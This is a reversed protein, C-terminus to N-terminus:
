SIASLNNTYTFVIGYNNYMNQIAINVFNWKTSNKRIECIALYREHDCSNGEHRLNTSILTLAQCKESTNTYKRRM